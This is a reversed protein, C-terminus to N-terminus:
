KDSGTKISKIISYITVDGMGQLKIKLHDCRRPQVPLSIARATDRSSWEVGIPNWIGNGDYEICATMRANKGLKLRIQCKAMTKKEAVEYGIEGSVFEFPISSKEKEGQTGNMAWITGDELMMYVEDQVRVFDTVHINDQKTWTGKSTDMTYLAWGSQTSRMSIYYKNEFECASGRDFREGAFAEDMSTPLADFMVPGNIGLYYLAGNVMQLTKNCGERVGDCVTQQVSFNSPREGYVKHVFREKFFYPSGRYNVAGTFKGETGVSITHSDIATGSYRRWNKFDNQASAYIENLVEGDAEGSYCGWLRNNAEIVYDMDPCLRDAKIVGELEVMEQLMGIMVLWDEACDLIEFTGNLESVQKKTKENEGTYELGSITLADGQKVGNGIGDATMKIYVTEYVVWKENGQSWRKLADTEGSTDLWYQGDQPNEPPISGIHMNEADFETGDVQCMSITVHEGTWKRELSGYDEQNVTNYYVKDPFVVIYAGMNVLQKEGESLGRIPTAAGNHHLVGGDVWALGNNHIMGQPEDLKTILGRRARTSIAGEPYLRMNKMDSCVQDGRGPRKDLGYFTRTSITQYPIKILNTPYKLM